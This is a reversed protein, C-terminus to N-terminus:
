DLDALSKITRTKGAKYENMADKVMKDARLAAKGKLQFTPFSDWDIEKASQRDLSQIAAVRFFEARSAFGRERVAKKVRLDLTKPITFNVIAM